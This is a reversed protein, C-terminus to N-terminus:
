RVRYEEKKKKNDTEQGMGGGWVCECVVGRTGIKEPNSSKKWSWLEM